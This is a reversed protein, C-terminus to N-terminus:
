KKAARQQTTIPVRPLQFNRIYHAEAEKYGELLTTNQTFYWLTPHFTFACDSHSDPSINKSRGISYVPSMNGMAHGAEVLTGRLDDDFNGNWINLMQCDSADRHCLEWVLAKNKATDDSLDIWRANINFGHKQRLERFLPAYIPKGASYIRPRTKM